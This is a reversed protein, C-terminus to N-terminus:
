VSHDALLIIRILLRQCVPCFTRIRRGKSYTDGILFTEFAPFTRTKKILKKEAEPFESQELRKVPVYHLNHQGAQISVKRTVKM